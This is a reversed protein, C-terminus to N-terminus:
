RTTAIPTPRARRVCNLQTTVPAAATTLMASFRSRMGGYPIIPAAIAVIAAYVVINAPIAHHACRM